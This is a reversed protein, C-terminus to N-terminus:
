RFQHSKLEPECRSKGQVEDQKDGSPAGNNNLDEIKRNRSKRGAKEPACM